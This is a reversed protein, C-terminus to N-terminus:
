TAMAEGSSSCMPSKLDHHLTGHEHLCAMGSAIGRALLLQAAKDETVVAPREDLMKRLSGKPM